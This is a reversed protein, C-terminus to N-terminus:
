FKTVAVDAAAVVSVVVAAQAPDVSRALVPKTLLLAVAALRKGTLATSPQKRKLMM